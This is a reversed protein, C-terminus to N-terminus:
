NWLSDVAVKRREVEGIKLPVILEIISSNLKKKDQLLLQKM